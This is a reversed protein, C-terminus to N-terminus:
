SPCHQAPLGKQKLRRHSITFIALFLTLLLKPLILNKKMRGVRMKAVLGSLLTHFCFIDALHLIQRDFKNTFSFQDPFTALKHLNKSVFRKTIM